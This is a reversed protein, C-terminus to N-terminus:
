AVEFASDVIRDDLQTELADPDTEAWLAVHAGYSGAPADDEVTWEVTATTTEGTGVSVVRGTTGDNTYVGDDPGLASFGLFFEGDADGGSITVTATM